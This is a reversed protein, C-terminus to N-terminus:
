LANNFIVYALSLKGIYVSNLYKYQYWKAIEGCSSISVAAICCHFWNIINSLRNLLFSFKEIQINEPVHLMQKLIQKACTHITLNIKTYHFHIKRTYIYVHELKLLSILLIIISM